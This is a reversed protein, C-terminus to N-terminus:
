YPDETEAMEKGLEEMDLDSDSDDNVKASEEAKETKNKNETSEEEKDEDDEPLDFLSSSFQSKPAESQAQTNAAQPSSPSSATPIPSVAEAQPAVDDSRGSDEEKSIDPELRYQSSASNPEAANTITLLSSPKTAKNDGEREEETRQGDEEASQPLVTTIGDNDNKKSSSITLSPSNRKFAVKRQQQQQKKRNSLPPSPAGRRPPSLLSASDSVVSVDVDQRLRSSSKTSVRGTASNVAKEALKELYDIFEALEISGSNDEDMDAFARVFIDRTGDEQRIHEPLELLEHLEHALEPSENISKIFEFRSLHGDHNRDILEFLERWRQLKNPRHRKRKRRVAELKAHNELYSSFEVLTLCANEDEEGYGM